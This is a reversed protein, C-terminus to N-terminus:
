PTLGLREMRRSHEATLTSFLRQQADGPVGGSGQAQVLLDRLAPHDALLRQVAGLSEGVLRRGWLALRSALTGDRTGAGALTEVVLGAHGDDALVEDVLDRTTPDLPGAVVRCFDDVVGYGVYANLLRETWTSPATRADLDVLAGAFPGMAAQLGSGLDTVRSDVLELRGMAMAAMRSLELRQDLAPAAVADAALRSFSALETHALLGLVALANGQAHPDTM